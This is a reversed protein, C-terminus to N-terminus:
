DTATLFEAARDRYLSSTVVSIHDRGPVELWRAHPLTEAWRGTAANVPDLAGTVLLTPRMPPPAPQALRPDAALGRIVALLAERDNRDDASAIRALRRAQPHLEEAPAGLQRFAVDLDDGPVDRLLPDGSYGGVVMRRVREFDPLAALECVLRAGLSYGCLDFEGAFDFHARVAARVDQLLYEVRYRDAEHPKESRGHGRLDVALATIGTRGLTRLWGTRQWNAAGASGFGHVLLVPTRGAAGAPRVLTTAIRTGDASVVDRDLVTTDAPLSGAVGDNTVDVM